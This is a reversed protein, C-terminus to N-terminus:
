YGRFIWNDHDSHLLNRGRGWGLPCPKNNNNNAGILTDLPKEYGGYAQIAIPDRSMTVESARLINVIARVGHPPGSVYIFPSGLSELMSRIEDPDVFKVSTEKRCYFYKFL